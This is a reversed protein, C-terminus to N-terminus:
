QREYRVPLPSKAVVKFAFPSSPAANARGGSPSLMRYRVVLAEPSESVAVIRLTSGGQPHLGAFYSVVELHSFDVAPAPRSSLRAWLQAWAKPDQITRGGPKMDAAFLGNWSDGEKFAAPVKRDAGEEGGAQGAPPRGAILSVTRGDVPVVGKPAPGGSMENRWRSWLAEAEEQTLPGSAHEALYRGFNNEGAGRPLVRSIGMRKMDREVFAHLTENTYGGAPRTSAGLPAGLASPIDKAALRGMPPGPPLPLAAGITLEGSKIDHLTKLALAVFIAAVLFGLFALARRLTM